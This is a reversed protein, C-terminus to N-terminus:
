EGALVREMHSNLAEYRENWVSLTREMEQDLRKKWIWYSLTAFLILAACVALAVIGNREQGEFLSIIGVLGAEFAGYSLFFVLLWFLPTRFGGARRRAKMWKPMERCSSAILEFSSPESDAPPQGAVERSLASDLKASWSKFEAIRPKSRAALLYWSVASFVVASTVGIALAVLGRDESDIHTFALLALIVSLIIGVVTMIIVSDQYNSRASEYAEASLRRGESLSEVIMMRTDVEIGPAQPIPLRSLRPVIRMCAFTSSRYLFFLSLALALPAGIFTFLLVIMIGMGSPTASPKYLVWTGSSSTRTTIHVASTSSVQVILRRREETVRYGSVRLRYALNALIEAPAGITKTLKFRLQFPIIVTILLGLFFGSVEGGSLIPAGEPVVAPIALMIGIPILSLLAITIVAKKRVPRRAVVLPDAMDLHVKKDAMRGLWYGTASAVVLIGVAPLMSVYATGDLKLSFQVPAAGDNVFVLYEDWILGTESSSGGGVSGYSTYQYREGAVFRYFNVRDLQLMYFDPYSVLSTSYELEGFGYFGIHFSRYSGPEVTIDQRDMHVSLATMSLVPVGFLLAVLVIAILARNTKEPWGELLGSAGKSRTRSRGEM